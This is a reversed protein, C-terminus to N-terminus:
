EGNGGGADDDGEARKRGGSRWSGVAGAGHEEVVEGAERAELGAYSAVGSTLQALLVLGDVGERPRASRRSRERLRRPGAMRWCTSGRRVSPRVRRM